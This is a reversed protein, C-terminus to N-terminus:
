YSSHLCSVQNRVMANEYTVQRLDPYFCQDRYPIFGRPCHYDPEAYLPKTMCVAHREDNCSAAKLYRPFSLMLVVWVCLSFSIIPNCM